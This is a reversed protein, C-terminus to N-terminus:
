FQIIIKARPEYLESIGSMLASRTETGPPPRHHKAAFGDSRRIVAKRSYTYHRQWSSRLVGGRPSFYHAQPHIQNQLIARLSPAKGHHLSCSPRMEEGASLLDNSEPSPRMLLDASIRKGHLLALLLTCTALPEQVRDRWSCASSLLWLL